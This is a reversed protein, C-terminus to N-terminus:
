AAELAGVLAPAIVAPAGPGPGEARRPFRLRAQRREREAVIELRGRDVGLCVDAVVALQQSWGGAATVRRGDPEPRPVAREGDQEAIPIPGPVRVQPDRVVALVVAEALLLQPVDHGAM